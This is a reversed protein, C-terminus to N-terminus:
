ALGVKRRGKVRKLEAETFGWEGDGVFDYRSGEVGLTKLGVNGEIVTAMARAAAGLILGRINRDATGDVGATYTFAASGPGIADGSLGWSHVTIGTTTQAIGGVTVATLSVVPRHPLFIQFPGGDFRAVHTFTGVSLRKGTHEELQGELGAIVEKAVDEQPGDFRLRLVQAVQQPTVVPM